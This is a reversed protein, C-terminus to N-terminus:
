CKFSKPDIKYKEFKRYLVSREIGAKESTTSINGKTERLLNELYIKEFEGVADNFPMKLYDAPINNQEPARFKPMDLDEVEIEDGPSVELTREIITKLERINGPFAYDILFDGAKKTLKKRRLRHEKAYTYIFHNALLPIDSTSQTTLVM